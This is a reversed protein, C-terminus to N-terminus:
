VAVSLEQGTELYTKLGSLVIPWGMGTNRFTLNEAGFGDHIMTVRCADGMPEIEFTVLSEPDRSGDDNRDGTFTYAFKRPPDFATVRGSVKAEGDKTSLAIHSGVDLKDSIKLGFFYHVTENPSTLATWLREPSTKIITVMQHRPAPMTTDKTELQSKLAVLGRAYPAALRSVFHDAVSQFAVPNLYHYRFRGSKRTSIVEADELVKLHKMVGFRSLHPFLAQLEGLTQGDRDRLAEVAALRTPDALAAFIKEM